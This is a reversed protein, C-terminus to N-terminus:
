SENEEKPPQQLYVIFRVKVLQDTANRDNKNANSITCTDVIPSEEMQKALKNLQKLNNASIDVTLVNGTLSWSSTRKLPLKTKILEIVASRDVLSLEEPTMNDTTVHAFEEEINGYDALAASLRDFDAKKQAAVGSASNMANLRDIVLFKSFVGALAAIILIGLLAKPVNVKKENVLVLNISRKVPINRLVKKGGTGKENGSRITTEAM